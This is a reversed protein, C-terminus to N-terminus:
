VHKIPLKINQLYELSEPGKNFLLDLASLNPVFGHRDDFVQTYSDQVYSVPKKANVFHRADNFQTSELEFSETKEQPFDIGIAECLFAITALNYDMLWDYKKKFVPLLDDEYFEFFPSTRYATQLTKLHIKKWTTSYDLQVQKYLQRGHTGGVHKIPINLMHKGQDTCVYCRNRYTQKQFNDYNEWVVDEQVLVAMNAISPFYTPHVLTKM